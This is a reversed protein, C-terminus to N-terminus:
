CTLIFLGWMQIEERAPLSGLILRLSDAGNVGRWRVVAKAFPRPLVTLLFASSAIGLHAM